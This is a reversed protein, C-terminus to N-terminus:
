YQQKAPIVGRVGGRPDAMDGQYRPILHIHVHAVTQGGVKGCNIGVNYGNPQFKEDLYEKTQVVLKQLGIIEEDTSDFYDPYIRHPVILCHGKSVPFEDYVAFGAENTLIKEKGLFPSEIM